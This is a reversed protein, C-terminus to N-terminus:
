LAAQDTEMKTPTRKISLIAGLIGIAIMIWAPWVPPASSVVIDDIMERFNRGPREGGFRLSDGEPFLEEVDSGALKGDSVKEAAWAKLHTELSMADSMARMRMATSAVTGYLLWFGGFLILTAIMLTKM